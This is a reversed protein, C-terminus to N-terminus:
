HMACLFFFAKPMTFCVKASAHQVAGYIRAFEAYPNLFFALADHSGNPDLLNFHVNGTSYYSVGM